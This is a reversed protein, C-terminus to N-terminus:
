IDICNRCENKNPLEANGSEVEVKIKQARSQNTIQKKGQQNLSTLSAMLNENNQQEVKSNNAFIPQAKKQQSLNQDKAIQNQINQKTSVLFHRTQCKSQNTKQSM